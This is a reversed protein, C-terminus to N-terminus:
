GPTATEKPKPPASEKLEFNKEGFERAYFVKTTGKLSDKREALIVGENNSVVRWEVSGGGASFVDGKKLGKAGDRTIGNKSKPKSQPADKKRNLGRTKLEVQVDKLRKHDADSANGGKIKAHLEQREKKLASVSTRSVDREGGDSISQLPKRKPSKRKGKPKGKFNLLSNVRAFQGFKDRKYKLRPM